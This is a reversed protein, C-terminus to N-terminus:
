ATVVVALHQGDAAFIQAGERDEVVAAGVFKEVLEDGPFDECGSGSGGRRVSQVVASLCLGGGWCCGAATLARGTDTTCGTACGVTGAAHSVGVSIVQWSLGGGPICGRDVVTAWIGIPAASPPRNESCRSLDHRTDGRDTVPGARRQPAHQAM